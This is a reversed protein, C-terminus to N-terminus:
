AGMDSFNCMTRSTLHKPRGGGQLYELCLNLLEWTEAFLKIFSILLYFGTYVIYYKQLYSAYFCFSRRRTVCAHSCIQSVFYGLMEFKCPLSALQVCSGSQENIWCYCSCRVNLIGRFTGYILRDLDWRCAKVHWEVLYVVPFRIM